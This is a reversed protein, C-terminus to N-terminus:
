QNEVIQVRGILGGQQQLEQRAVKTADAKQHHPGVAVHVRTM